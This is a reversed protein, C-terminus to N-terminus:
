EEGEGYKITYWIDKLRKLIRKFLSPKKYITNVIEITNKDILYVQGKEVDRSVVINMGFLTQKFMSDKYDETNIILRNPTTGLKLCEERAKLIGSKEIKM